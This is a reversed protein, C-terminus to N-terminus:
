KVTERVVEDLTSVGDRVKTLGSRRLSIMGEEIAKQKLEIASAGELILQRIEDTLELVEYLGVRGKYGTNNCTSCGRGKMVRVDKVEDPTYGADILAQPPVEVPTKCEKCIRRVLRQACILHVSTAVLFPEIGMNMLRNITSPADNTHLTSLVLHGTLAAKVAIEATEFDRIEGVLIINPDQRLFSRLAAAFNLGISEKMQVQNVGALNFEVPDEATMINTEPTNLQSIASYLTNTKGSGTPGTVLAMGWPKFIAEELKKLSAAEFGLKTMDLMLNEKDLLRLVVKEGFLTPLTSVRYDLERLKGQNNMRIKIRGDQPLRRESIDLKAMIKIRSIIADRLKMPPNMVVYLVGDIRFRVRFEREYPEIHIDSAGRRLADTLVLNCLKVVPAEETGKELEVLDIEDGEELVEVDENFDDTEVLKDMEEKIQLSHVSGYYKEISEMIATESAVVPEVNYGTMFKIDDMAFVNTPDVMAITLNAGARSLPIIQYKQATEAPVLKIVSPDIEFRALNISPVGYQRSLLQTIEEDKVFGLKVLNFGLKGGHQKQYQLAEQLQQPTILNEKVLLEGLKIPM